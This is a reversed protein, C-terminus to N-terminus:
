GVKDGADSSRDEEEVVAEEVPNERTGHKDHALAELEVVKAPRGEFYQVAAQRIKAAKKQIIITGKALIFKPKIFKQRM